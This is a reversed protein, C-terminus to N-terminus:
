SGEEGPITDRLKELLQYDWVQFEYYMEQSQYKRHIQEIMSFPFVKNHDPLVLHTDGDGRCKIGSEIAKKWYATHSDNLTFTFNSTDEIDQIKVMLIHPETEGHSMRRKALEILRQRTMGPYLYFYVPIKEKLSGFEQTYGQYL